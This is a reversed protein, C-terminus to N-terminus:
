FPVTIKLTFLYPKPDIAANCIWAWPKGKDDDDECAKAALGSKGYGIELTSKGIKVTYDADFTGENERYTYGVGLASNESINYTLKNYVTAPYHEGTGVLLAIKDSFEENIAIDAHGYGVFKTAADDGTIKEGKALGALVVDVKQVVGPEVTQEAVAYLSADLRDADEAPVGDKFDYDKFQYAAKGTVTVGELPTADFGGDLRFGYGKDDLAKGYGWTGRGWLELMDNFVYTAKGYVQTDFDDANAGTDLCTNYYGDLEVTVPESPQFEVNAGIENYSDKDKKTDANILYEDYVKLDFDMSALNLTTLAEGYLHLNGNYKEIDSKTKTRTDPAVAVFGDDVLHMEANLTVKDFTMDNLNLEFAKLPEGWVGAARTNGFALAGTFTAAESVPLPGTVDVGINRVLDYDPLDEEEVWAGGNGADDDWYKRYYDYMHKVGGTLGLTYGASLDYTARGLAYRIDKNVYEDDEDVYETTYIVYADTNVGYPQGAIKLVAWVDGLPVIRDGLGLPDGLANFAYEGEDNDTLSITFPNGRYVVLYNDDPDIDYMLIMAGLGDYDAMSYLRLPLHAEVIEGESFDLTLYLTSMNLLNLGYWGPFDEEYNERIYDVSPNISFIETQDYKIEGVYKGSVKLEAGLAPVALIAVLVLTLVTILSKRM